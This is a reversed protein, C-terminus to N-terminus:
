REGELLRVLNEFKWWPLIQDSKISSNGHFFGGSCFILIQETLNPDDHWEKLIGTPSDDPCFAAITLNGRSARLARDLEINIHSDGFSYGCTLLVRQDNGPPNLCSRARRLLDAYPDLQAERYKTAAPWIVIQTRDGEGLSLKSSIRRPYRDRPLQCWDISGHLKLVKAHLDTQDLLSPQWWGTAGGSMGDTFNVCELALADEFITDYNLVLYDVQRESGSKGPRLPQHLTRVLRQHVSPDVDIFITESIAEKIEDAAIRLADRDYTDDGIQIANCDVGRGSRRDAIALLDVLESLYDEINADHAGAFSDRITFLLKRSEESLQESALVKDTLEFTLPLGAPKGCGAGALFVRRGQALLDEVNDIASQFGGERIPSLDDVATM